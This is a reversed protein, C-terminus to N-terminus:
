YLGMGGIAILAVSLGFAFTLPLGVIIWALPFSVIGREQLTGKPPRLLAILVVLGAFLAVGTAIEGGSLLWQM